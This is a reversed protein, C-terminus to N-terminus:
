SDEDIEGTMSFRALKNAADLMEDVQETSKCRQYHGAQILACLIGHRCKGLAIKDWNPKDNSEQEKPEPEAPVCKFTNNKSQWKIDYFQVGVEETKVCFENNNFYYMMEVERGVYDTATIAQCLGNVSPTPEGVDLVCVEVSKIKSNQRQIDKFTMKM